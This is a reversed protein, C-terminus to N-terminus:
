NELFNKILFELVKAMSVNEKECKKKFQSVLGVSLRFTANQKELLSQEIKIDEIIKKSNIKTDVRKM